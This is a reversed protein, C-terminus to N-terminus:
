EPEKDVRVRACGAKHAMGDSSEVDCDHPPRDDAQYRDILDAAERLIDASTWQGDIKLSGAISRLKDTDM